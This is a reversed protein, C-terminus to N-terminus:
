IRKCTCFLRLIVHIIANNVEYQKEVIQNTYLLLNRIGSIIPCSKALKQRGPLRFNLVEAVFANTGTKDDVNTEKLWSLSREGVEVM